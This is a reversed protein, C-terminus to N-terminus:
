QPKPASATAPATGLPATASALKRLRNRIQPAFESGPYLSVAREYVERARTPNGIEEYAQGLMLGAYQATKTGGTGKIFSELPQVAGQYERTQIRASGLHFWILNDGVKPELEVYRGLDQSVTKWDQRRFAGEGSSRAAEALQRKMGAARDDIAKAELASLQSRDLHMAQTMAQNLGPGEKESALLDYVRLAKESTERRAQDSAKIKEADKALAAARAENSQADSRATRVEANAFAIAGVGAIVAFGIYATVSTMWHRKEQEEHKRGMQKLEAHLNKLLNDTKIVLNRAEIVEKRLLSIDGDQAAPEPHSVSRPSTEDTMMM